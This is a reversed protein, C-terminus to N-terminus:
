HGLDGDSKKRGGLMQRPIAVRLSWVVARLPPLIRIGWARRLPGARSRLVGLGLQPSKKNPLPIWCHEPSVGPPAPFPVQMCPLHRGWQGIELGQQETIDGQFALTPTYPNKSPPDQGWHSLPLNPAPQSSCGSVQSVRVETSEGSVEKM